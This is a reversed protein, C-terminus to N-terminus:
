AAAEMLREEHARMQWTAPVTWHIRGGYSPWKNSRLCDRWVDIAGQVEADAIERLAPDCGHLSCEHPAEVSQALFIFTPEPVCLLEAVRRYFADQLHYGMRVIQRSFVDPAVNDTTKYDIIIRRNKTIKDFRCRLWAGKDQCIGTVESDADHWAEAIESTEIFALAADVMKRVAAYHRALLPTKGAARAAERQQQAVKTRWDDAEVIAIRSADNELLVAHAATGMDFKGEQDEKFAPNLKPHAFWAKRPSERLLIQMVSSSLSAAVCPDAHYAGSPVALHFGPTM